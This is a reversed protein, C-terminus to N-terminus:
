FLTLQNDTIFELSIASSIALAAVALYFLTPKRLLTLGVRKTHNGPYTM